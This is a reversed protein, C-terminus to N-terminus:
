RRANVATKLLDRSTSYNPLVVLSHVTTYNTSSVGGEENTEYSISNVTLTFSFSSKTDEQMKVVHPSAVPPPLLDFANVGNIRSVSGSPTVYDIYQLPFIVPTPSYTVSVSSGGGAVSFPSSYPSISHSIYDGPHALSGSAGVDETFTLTGM